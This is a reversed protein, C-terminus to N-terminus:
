PAGGGKAPRLSALFSEARDKNFRADVAAEIPKGGIQNRYIRVKRVYTQTKEGVRVKPGERKGEGVFTWKGASVPPADAPAPYIVIEWSIPIWRKIVRAIEAGRTPAEEWGSPLKGELAGAGLPTRRACGTVALLLVLGACAVTKRTRM